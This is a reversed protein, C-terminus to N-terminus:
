KRCWSKIEDDKNYFNCVNVMKKEGNEDLEYKVEGNEEYMIPRMIPKGLRDDEPNLFKSPYRFMYSTEKTDAPEIPPLDNCFM